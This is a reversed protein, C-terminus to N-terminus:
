CFQKSMAEVNIVRVITKPDIKLNKLMTDNFEATPRKHGYYHKGNRGTGSQGCLPGGCEDCIAIGSYSFNFENSIKNKTKLSSTLERNFTEVDVIPKM